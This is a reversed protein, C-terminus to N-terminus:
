KKLAKREQNNLRHGPQKKRAERTARKSIKSMKKM